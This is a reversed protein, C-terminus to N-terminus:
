WVILANDGAAVMGADAINDAPLSVFVDKSGAAFNVLADANSSRLVRDRVLTTTASLFGEGVEWSSGDTIVYAIPDGVAFATGFAQYGTPPTGSLTVNGTGTTTTTDKVRDAYGM